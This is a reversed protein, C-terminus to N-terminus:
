KAPQGELVQARDWLPGYHLSVGSGASSFVILDEHGDLDIDAVRLPAPLSGAPLTRLQWGGAPSSRALVVREEDGFVLTRDALIGVSVYGLGPAPVYSVDFGGDVRARLIESRGVEVAVVIDRRGDGDVDGVALNRPTTGEVKRLPQVSFRRQGENTALAVVGTDLEAWLIDPRGNGHWDTVVPHWASRGSAIFTPASFALNDEGWLIALQEGLYPSLLIDLRGDADFDAVRVDRAPFPTPLDVKKVFRGDAELLWLEVRRTGEVAVVFGQNSWAAVGDPHYGTALVGGDVRDISRAPGFRWVALLDEVHSAVGLYRYGGARLLDGGWAHVGQGLVVSAEATVAATEGGSRAGNACAALLVTASGLVFWALLTLCRM